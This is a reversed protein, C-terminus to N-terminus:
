IHILSLIRVEETVLASCPLVSTSSVPVPVKIYNNDDLTFRHYMGAPLVIMDGKCCKVRVWKDEKDRVDFYGAASNMYISAAATM